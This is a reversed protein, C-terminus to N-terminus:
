EEHLLLGECTAIAFAHSSNHIMTISFLYENNYIINNKHYNLASPMNQSKLVQIFASEDVAAVSSGLSICSTADTISFPAKLSRSFM